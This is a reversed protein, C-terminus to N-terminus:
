EAPRTAPPVSQTSPAPPTDAGPDDDYMSPDVTPKNEHIRAERYQLYADRTFVYPDIAAKDRFRVEQDMRSRTDIAQEASVSITAALPLDAWTLPNTLFQMGIDPVDRATSPGLLPIVLYPGAPAGWKGLTIGFDNDHKQLGMSTAPDFLGAVGLTSNVFMRGSDSWGQEWKAQLFDNLIVNFYGLNDFGNSLGTRIERPVILVYGDSLPKFIVADLGDNFQYFVRNTPEFPDVKSHTTACAPLFSLSLLLALRPPTTPSM